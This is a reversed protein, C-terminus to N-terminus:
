VAWMLRDAIFFVGLRKEKCGEQILFDRQAEAEAEVEEAIITFLMSHGPAIVARSIAAVNEEDPFDNVFSRDIKLKNVLSQKLHALSSYGTSFDDIALSM